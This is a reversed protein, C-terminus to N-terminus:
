TATQNVRKANGKRYVTITAAHTSVNEAVAYGGQSFNIKPKPGVAFAQAPLALAAFATLSILTKRTMPRNGEQTSSDGRGIDSPAAVGDIPRRPFGTNM